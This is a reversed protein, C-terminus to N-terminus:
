QDPRPTMYYAIQLGVWTAKKGTVINAGLQPGSSLGAVDASGPRPYSVSFPRFRPLLCLICSSHQNYNTGEYPADCTSLAGVWGALWSNETAAEITAVSCTLESYLSRPVPYLQHISFYKKGEKKGKRCRRCGRTKISAPAM